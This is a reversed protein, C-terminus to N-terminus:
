TMISLFAIGLGFPQNSVERPDEAMVTALQGQFGSSRSQRGM